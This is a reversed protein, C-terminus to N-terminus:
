QSAIKAYLGTTPNLELMNLVNNNLALAIYNNFYSIKIITCNRTYSISQLLTFNIIGGVNTNKFINVPLAANGSGFVAMSNSIDCEIYDGHQNSSTEILLDQYSFGSPSLKLIIVDVLPTDRAICILNGDPSMKM